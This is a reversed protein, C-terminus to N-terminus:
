TSLSRRQLYVFTGGGAGGAVLLALLWGVIGLGGEEEGSGSDAAEGATESGAAADAGGEAVEGVSEGEIAPPSSAPNVEAVGLERRKVNMETVARRWADARSMGTQVYATYMTRETAALSQAVEALADPPLGKGGPNTPTPPTTTAPPSTPGAVTGAPPVIGGGHTIYAVRTQGDAARYKLGVLLEGAAVDIAQLPKGDPGPLTQWSGNHLIQLYEGVGIGGTEGALLVTGDLAIAASGGMGFSGSTGPISVGLNAAARPAGPLGTTLFRYRSGTHERTSMAVVGHAAYYGNGAGGYQGPDFPTSVGSNPNLARLLGTSDAYIILGGTLFIQRRDVGGYETLDFQRAVAGAAVPAVWLSKKRASSFAVLGAAADVAVSSIDSDLWGGNRIPIVRPTEGSVDIVKVSTQDAVKRVGSVTAVLYGDAKLLSGSHMGGRADYLSVEPPPIEVLTDARTDYVAVETRHVLVIKQGCVQFLKSNWTEGRPIERATTDGPRIWKVGNPFGTGFALVDDGADITTDSRCDVNTTVLQFVRGANATTRVQWQQRQAASPGEVQAPTGGAIKAAATPSLAKMWLLDGAGERNAAYGPFRPLLYEEYPKYDPLGRPHFKPRQEEVVYPYVAHVADNRYVVVHYNGDRAFLESRKMARGSKNAPFKMRFILHQWQQGGVALQGGEAVVDENLRIEVRVRDAGSGEQLSIRHMWCHFEPIGEPGDELPFFLTAWEDWMGRTFFYQKPDFADDSKKVFVAFPFRSLVEGDVTWTLVYDGPESFRFGPPDAAKLYSFAGYLTSVRYPMTVLPETGGKKTLVGEVRAGEPLFAALVAGDKEFRMIGNQHYVDINNLVSTHEVIPPQQAQAPEAPVLLYVPLTLLVIRIFAAANEALGHGGGSKSVERSM